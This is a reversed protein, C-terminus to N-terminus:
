PKPPPNQGSGGGPNAPGPGDVGTDGNNDPDTDPDGDEGNTSNVYVTGGTNCNASHNAPSILGMLLAIFIPIFM